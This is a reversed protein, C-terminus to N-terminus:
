LFIDMYDNQMNLCNKACFSKIYRKPTSSEIKMKKGTRDQTWARPDHPQIMDAISVKCLSSILFDLNVNFIIDLVINLTSSMSFWANWANNWSFM